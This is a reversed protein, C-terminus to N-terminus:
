LFEGPEIFEVNLLPLNLEKWEVMIAEKEEQTLPKTSYVKRTNSKLDDTWRIYNHESDIEKIASENTTDSDLWQHFREVCEQCLDFENIKAGNMRKEEISINDYRKDYLKGCVDCKIVESM